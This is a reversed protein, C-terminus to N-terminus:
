GRGSASRTETPDESDAQAPAASSAKSGLRRRGPRKRRREPVPPVQIAVEEEQAERGFLRRLGAALVLFALRLGGLVMEGYIRWRNPSEFLHDAVAPEKLLTFFDVMDDESLSMIYEWSVPEEMRGKLYLMGESKLPESETLSLAITQEGLGKSWFDM